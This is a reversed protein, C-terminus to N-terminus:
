EYTSSTLSVGANQISNLDLGCGGVKFMARHNHKGWQKHCVAKLIYRVHGGDGEFSMPIGVPLFFSFELNHFGADM